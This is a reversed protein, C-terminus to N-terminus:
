RVEKERKCSCCDDGIKGSAADTYCYLVPEPIKQTLLKTVLNHWEERVESAQWNMAHFPSFGEMDDHVREATSDIIGNSISLASEFMLREIVKKM